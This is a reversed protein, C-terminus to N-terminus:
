KQGLWRGSPIRRGRPSLEGAVYTWVPVEAQSSRSHVPILVREYRNRHGPRFEELADMARLREVPNAFTLITGHVRSTAARFPLPPSTGAALGKALREQTEIDAACNTAARALLLSESLRMVPYGTPMLYLSGEIQTDEMTHVGRCFRNHNSFGRKLSGYVFLRLRTM